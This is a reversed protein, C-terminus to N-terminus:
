NKTGIWVTGIKTSYTTRNSEDTFSRAGEKIKRKYWKQFAFYDEKSAYVEETEAIDENTFHNEDLAYIWNFTDLEKKHKGYNQTPMKLQNEPRFFTVNYFDLMSDIACVVQSKAINPEFLWIALYYPKELTKLQQEWSNFIALLGDLILKRNKGKPAPIESGSVSIDCFPSVWVKAYNRQSSKLYEVDLKLNYNKWTEIDKQIRNHGRIKRYKTM